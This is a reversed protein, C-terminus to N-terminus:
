STTLTALRGELFAREVDNQALAVARRYSAAAAQDRGLRRLFDARTAPLYHYTSLAPGDEAELQELAQLGAEAGSRFGVAVVRNLAVVPSPWSDLLLDYLDVIQAWDTDAFSPAEAHLAAIAAQIVFRGPRGGRLAELVMVRGREIAAHDWRSRDQDELLVLHGGEDVRTMRRADTLLILALLGRVEREDPMLDVLVKCLEIARDALDPRVLTDGTPATHGATFVLHVATLVADLREPLEHSDPVRYPIRAGSIKKKARTVRAAMTPESVLFAHAIQETTLGCVLRLTLAVQAERALAPHCCTFVLRLRDDPIDDMETLQTEPSPSALNNGLPGSRGDPEILLPIRTRLAAARRHSDLAKRRATTTLWAGPSRPIGDRQWTELASVYADQACEQALDIDGAVRVTAALVRAWEHRHAAALALKVEDSTTV